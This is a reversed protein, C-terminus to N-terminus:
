GGASTLETLWEEYEAAVLDWNYLERARRAAEARLRNCLEADDLVRQLQETLEAASRYYLGADALVERHEPVDNAVVANGFGM